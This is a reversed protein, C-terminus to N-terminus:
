VEFLVTQQVQVSLICVNLFEDCINLSDRTDWLHHSQGWITVSLHPGQHVSRAILKFYRLPFSPEHKLGYSDLTAQM